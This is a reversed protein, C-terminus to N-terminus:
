YRYKCILLTSNNGCRECMLLTSNNGCRECMLLTSNNGCQECMIYTNGVVMQLGINKHNINVQLHKMLVYM